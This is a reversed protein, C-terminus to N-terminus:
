AYRHSFLVWCFGVMEMVKQSCLEGTRVIEWFARCLFYIALFIQDMLENEMSDTCNFAITTSSPFEFWMWCFLSTVCVVVVKQGRKWRLLLVQLSTCSRSWKGISQLLQLTGILYNIIWVGLLTGNVYIMVDLTVVVFRTSQELTTSSSHKSTFQHKTRCWV